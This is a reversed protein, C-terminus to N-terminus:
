EAIIALPKVISMKGNSYRFAKVECKDKDFGTVFLTLDRMTETERIAYHNADSWFLFAAFIVGRENIVSYM